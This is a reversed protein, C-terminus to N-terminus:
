VRIGTLHAISPIIRTDAKGNIPAGPPYWRYMKKLKPHISPWAVAYRHRYQIIQIDPAIEGPWHKGLPVRYFRIGSIGDARASLTWAPPLTGFKETLAALGAGGQKGAYADVDIGIIGDPVRLGINARDEVSSIWGEVDELQPSPHHGTFNLPPPSKEGAPLPLPLWGRQFYELAYQKFPQGSGLDIV